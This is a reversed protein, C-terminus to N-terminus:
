EHYLVWGGILSKQNGLCSAATAHEKAIQLAPALISILVAIIAVVILLEILTFGRKNIM